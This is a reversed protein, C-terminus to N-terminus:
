CGSVSSTSSVCSQCLGTTKGLASHTLPVQLPSLGEQHEVHISGPNPINGWIGWCILSSPGLLPLTLMGLLFSDQEAPFRKVFAPLPGPWYSVRWMLMVLPPWIELVHDGPCPLSLYGYDSLCATDAEPRWVCFCVCCMCICFLIWHFCPRREFSMATLRVLLYTFQQRLDIMLLLPKESYFIWDHNSCRHWRRWHVGCFSGSCVRLLFAPLQSSCVCTCGYM